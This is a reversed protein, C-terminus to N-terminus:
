SIWIVSAQRGTQGDRRYSFFAEPESVTCHRCVGAVSVEVLGLRLSALGYLNALFKGPAPGAKFFLEALSSKRDLFAARVEAGVEFKEPGIAPGFAAVISESRGRQRAEQRMLHVTNELVGSALGRWGAHAIGIVAGDTSSFFVPLCDATQIVLGLGKQSTVMADAALVAAPMLCPEETPLSAGRPLDDALVARSGHVQDVFCLREVGRLQTLLRRRNELVNLKEDGVHAGLNLSEFPGTSVGGPRMTAIAQVGNPKQWDPQYMALPLLKETPPSPM